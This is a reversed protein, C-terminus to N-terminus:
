AFINWIYELKIGMGIMTTLEQESNRTKINIWFKMGNKLGLSQLRKSCFSFYNSQISMEWSISYITHELTWSVIHEEHLISLITEFVM